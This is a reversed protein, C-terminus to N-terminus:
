DCCISLFGFNPMNAKIYQSNPLRRYINLIKCTYKQLIDFNNPKGLGLGQKIADYKCQGAKNCIKTNNQKIADHKCQGAQHDKGVLWREEDKYM